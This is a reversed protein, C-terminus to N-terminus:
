RMAIWGAFNMWRWFCEVQQFGANRLLDENWRAEIPVLVGELSLRKRDISEQSYGHERKLDYYTDVFLRDLYPSSGLLKEVVIFAGGPVTSAFAQHVIRNRHEIPIFQLTLIAQTVSVTQAQVPYDNRLDLKRIEISRLSAFRSRAAELMPDSTEVGIIRAPGVHPLLEQIALGDSCGLDVIATNPQYFKVALRRCAGRMTLYDPISRALMDEFCTTVSSDFTWREGAPNHDVSTSM